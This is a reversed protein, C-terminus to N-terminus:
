RREENYKNLLTKFKTSKIYFCFGDQEEIPLIGNESLYDKLIISDTIHFQSKDLSNFNLIRM